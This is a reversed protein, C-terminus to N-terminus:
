KPYRTLVYDTNSKVESMSIERGWHISSNYNGEAVTVSDKGVKLVIVSHSDQNMRLIDGVRIKNLNTHKRAPLSGFAADSLIFAFGACGYGGTYVGGNWEYYNDNTWYLGEPYNTKLRTMAKYISSSDLAVKIKCKYKTGNKDKCTIVAVGVRKGKVLGDTSVTAISKKNSSWSAAKAGKLKLQFTEGKKLSVTTQNLKATSEAAGKLVVPSGTPAAASVPLPFSCLLVAMCLVAAIRRYFYQTKMIKGEQKNYQGM